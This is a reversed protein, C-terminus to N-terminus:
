REANVGTRMCTGPSTTEGRYYSTSARGAHSLLWHNADGQQLSVNLLQLVLEARGGKAVRDFAAILASVEKARGYLKEPIVLREPTDEQGIQFEDIRGQAQWEM